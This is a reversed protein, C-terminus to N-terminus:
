IIKLIHNSIETYKQQNVFIGGFSYLGFIYALIHKELFLSNSPPLAHGLMERCSETRQQTTLIGIISFDQVWSFQLYNIQNNEGPTNVDDGTCPSLLPDKNQSM